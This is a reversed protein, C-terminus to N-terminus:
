GSVLFFSFYLTQVLGILRHLVIPVTRVLYTTVPSTPSFPYGFAAWQLLEAQFLYQFQGCTDMEAHRTLSEMHYWRM